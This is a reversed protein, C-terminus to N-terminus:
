NVHVKFYIWVKPAFIWIRNLWMKPAFIWIWTKWKKARFNLNLENTNKPAFIWISKELFIVIKARFNLNLKGNRIKKDVLNDANMGQIQRVFHLFYAERSMEGDTIVDIGIDLQKAVVEDIAKALLDENTQLTKEHDDKSPPNFSDLSFNNLFWWFIVCQPLCDDKTWLNSSLFEIQNKTDSFNLHQM